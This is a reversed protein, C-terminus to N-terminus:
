RNVKENRRQLLGGSVSSSSTDGAFAISSSVSSLGAAAVSPGPITSVSNAVGGVGTTATATGGMGPAPLSALGVATVAEGTVATMGHPVSQAAAPVDQASPMGEATTGEANTAAGGARERAAALAAARAELKQRKKEECLRKQRSEWREIRQQQLPHIRPACYFLDVYENSYQLSSGTEDRGVQRM